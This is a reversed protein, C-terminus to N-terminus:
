KKGYLRPAWDEVEGHEIRREVLRRWSEVLPIALLQQLEQKDLSGEFILKMIRSLPWDPYPRECLIIEDGKEIVGAELVRFYWGTRLTEQLKLAMDNLKFRVNLKWCPMRGQSVELIASGICIKDHLCITSETIGSSSINEGFAGFCQLANLEGLDERWKQYHESPYIHLAKEVGGHIRKDGQGDHVFGLKSAWQGQNTAKKNIASKSGKAYPETKGVLVSNVVGLKDM